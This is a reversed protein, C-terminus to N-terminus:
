TMCKDMDKLIAECANPCDRSQGLALSTVRYLIPLILWYCITHMIQNGRYKHLLGAGSDFCVLACVMYMMRLVELSIIWVGFLQHKDRFPADLPLETDDERLTSM